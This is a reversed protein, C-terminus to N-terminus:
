VLSDVPSGDVQLGADHVQLVWCESSEHVISLGHTTSMKKMLMWRQLQSPYPPIPWSAAARLVVFNVLASVWGLLASLAESVAQAPAQEGPQGKEQIGVSSSVVMSALYLHFARSGHGEHGM